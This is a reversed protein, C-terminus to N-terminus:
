LNNDIMFDYGFIEFTNKKQNPNLKGNDVCKFTMEIIPLISTELIEKMSIDLGTQARIIQSGQDYSLM